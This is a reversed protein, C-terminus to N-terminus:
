KNIIPALQDAMQQHAAVREEFFADRNYVGEVGKKVHNLCKEAVESRVGNKSMLTRMTRRLDHVTFYEIGADGLINGTSSSLKGTKKGFLNTLAHNLTDDSIYERRKSARRSPFVYNSNGALMKLEYLWELVQTPLPIDIAKNNKAREATLCWINKDLDLEDWRLAILEGKRVGLTLLLAVALYNERSFHIRNAKMIPFVIKLEDFSLARDRPTERGGADSYEFASAPNNNSVSIKAAYKFLKKLYYLTDNAITHRPTKKRVKVADLLRQIDLGTVSKIALKGIIPRIEQKYIRTPIEPHKYKKNKELEQLWSEALDDVTKFQIVQARTREAIPDNGANLLAKAEAMAARAQPLPMGIPKKGYTGLTMRKSKNDVKYQFVWFGSGANTIRFYLNQDIRTFSMVQTNLLAKILGDSIKGAKLKNVIEAHTLNTSLNASEM